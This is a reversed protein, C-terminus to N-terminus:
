PRRVLFRASGPVHRADVAVLAIELGLARRYHPESPTTRELQVEQSSKGDTLVLTCRMQNRSDSLNAEIVGRLGEMRIGDLLDASKGEVLTVEKANTAGRTGQAAAASGLMSM